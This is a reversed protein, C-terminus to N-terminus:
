LQFNLNFIAFTFNLAPIYSKTMFFVVSIGIDIEDHGLKINYQKARECLNQFLPHSVFIRRFNKLLTNKFVFFSEAYNFFFVAFQDFRTYLTNLEIGVDLQWSYGGLTYFFGEHYLYM